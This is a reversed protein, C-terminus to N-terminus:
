KKLSSNGLGCALSACRLASQKCHVLKTNLATHFKKKKPPPCKENCAIKREFNQIDIRKHSIIKPFNM